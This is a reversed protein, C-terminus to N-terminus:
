AARVSDIGAAAMAQPLRSSLDGPLLAHHHVAGSAAWADLAEAVGTAAPFRVMANPADLGPYRTEVVEALAWVARWGSLVPTVSLVTCPGPQLAFAISAGRGNTGPYHQTPIISVPGAAWGPDGEGGNAVLVLGSALEPAFFESYLAAGALAQGLVLAIATPQDGTCSLPVGRATALSVGLCACIGVERGFRFLPGHCNVTGGVAGHREILLWLAAALRLSEDDASGRWDRQRLQTGVAELDDAGVAALAETLEAADVARERLGLSSLQAPTTEVDLYGPIPDGVRLLVQGALSSGAVVSRVAARVREFRSPDDPAATVAIPPRGGRVMLNGLMIASITTTHEHASAQNLDPSLQAVLPANWIVVPVDLGELAHAAYSPPAAMVPAFVVADLDSERFTANARRGDEDSAVIGPYVIEFDTALAARYREGTAVQRARFDPPMQADFLSFYVSLLGVRPRSSPSRSM